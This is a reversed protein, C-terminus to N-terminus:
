ATKWDRDTRNLRVCGDATVVVLDEIRVGFEGPLYVGPEVSFVMGPELEREGGSVVFPEEHVDLGVGHGTRHVFEDGYGAEEIVERAAADVAGTTVGPEVAEVAAEQAERVVRHVERVDKPPSEDGFVLTRTQDSPYDDVRTGFDLVVPDGADIVRDGHTHHPMAGNPGSGVITEFSVGTGGNAALRDEVHRALEAETMGVVDNGDARLERIVADAAEGARRLAAVEADDKIARLDALVDSALGFTADPLVERLDQTFRAHMTDDVLVRPADGDRQTVGLDDVVAAVAAVPDEDDAWTRVDDVAAEARVQEGSLEPVLFVPEQDATVFLLFHRESPHESYGTLYRLNTSPFLVLADGARGRTADGDRPDGESDRLRDRVASLREAYPGDPAPGSDPDTDTDSM